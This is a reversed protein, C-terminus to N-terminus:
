YLSMLLLAVLLGGMKGGEAVVAAVEGKGGGQRGWVDPLVGRGLVAEM